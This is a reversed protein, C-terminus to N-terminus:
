FEYRLKMMLIHNYYKNKEFAENSARNSQLYRYEVSAIVPVVFVEADLGLMFQLPMVNDSELRAYGLGAGVYPTILPLIFPVDVYANAMLADMNIKGLGKEIKMRNHLYEGEVRVIDIFPLDYGVALSYVTSTDYDGKIFNKNTSGTNKAIGAAGSVYFEANAAFALSVGFFAFILTKIKM